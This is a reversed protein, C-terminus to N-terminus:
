SPASAPGGYPPMLLGLPGVGLAQVTALDHRDYDQWGVEEYGWVLAGMGGFYHRTMGVQGGGIGVFDGDVYCAGFPAVSAFAAYLGGYNEKSVTFGIDVTECLDEARWVLYSGVVNGVGGEDLAQGFPSCGQVGALAAVLALGLAIRGLMPVKGM